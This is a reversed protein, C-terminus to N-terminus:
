PDRQWTGSFDPVRAGDACVDVILEWRIDDDGASFIRYAGRADPCAPDDVLIMTLGSAEFRGSWTDGLRYTADQLTLVQRRGDDLARTYTGDSWHPRDAEAGALLVSRGGVGGAVALLAGLATGAVVRWRAGALRLAGAVLVVALLLGAALAWGPSLWLGSVQGVHSIPWAAAGLLGAGIGAAIPIGVPLSRQRRTSWAVAFAGSAVLVVVGAALVPVAGGQWASLDLNLTRYGEGRMERFHVIWAPM